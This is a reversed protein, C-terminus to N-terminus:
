FVLGMIEFAQKAEAQDKYNKELFNKLLYLNNQSKWLNMPIINDKAWQVLSIIDSLYTGTNDKVFTSLLDAIKREILLAIRTKDMIELEWQNFEHELALLKKASFSSNQELLEILNANVKFQIIEYFVKPVPINNLKMAEILPYNKNYLTEALGDAEIVNRHAISNLLKIKEDKFLSEFKFQHDDFYNLLCQNLDPIRFELICGKIQTKLLEFDGADISERKYYGRINLAGHNVAVFTYDMHSRTIRSQVTAYGMVLTVEGQIYRKFAHYTVKFNYLFTEQPTREFLAFISIHKAVNLLDIKETLVFHQYVHAGNRMHPYNSPAEKLRKTFEAEGNFSFYGALHIARAAYQLIQITEIGSIEDFFWGCSTYMLMAQRQMELLRLGDNTTDETISGIAHQQFFAEVNTDSRDLIIKIYNDRAEWIDKFIVKGEQEFLQVLADRLWDLAQRLPERYKQNWGEHNTTKCGCDSRWREVGHVCSWSSNEKIQAEQAEPFKYLFYAYNTVQTDKHAPLQELCSALAMEGFRHHHGYTEGDTALHVLTSHEPNTTASIIRNAFKTGNELLGNFAVEQSLPGNYFFVIIHRGSPLTVRYPRTTDLTHEESPIWAESSNKRISAIQRPALITFQIDAAALAELTPTDVATESLWMGAPKRKYRHVFDAIGWIVQTQKDRENALPMIMHNYVQAIANGHGEYHIESLRDAELIKEYSEPAFKEMWSLLTPGFNFSIQQYNNNISAIHNNGDYIRAARNPAYCEYNIRENWDHSPAATPQIQIVELWPNERPPQYFHGHICVFM